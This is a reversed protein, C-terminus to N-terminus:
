SVCNMTCTHSLLRITSLSAVVPYLCLVPAALTVSSIVSSISLDPQKNSCHLVHVTDLAFRLAIQGVEPQQNQQNNQAEIQELRAQEIAAHKADLARRETEEDQEQLLLLVDLDGPPFLLYM